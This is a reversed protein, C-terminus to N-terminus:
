ALFLRHSIALVGEDRRQGVILALEEIGLM